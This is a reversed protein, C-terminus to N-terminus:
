PGGDADISAQAAHWAAEAAADTSDFPGDAPSVVRTRGADGTAAYIVAQPRWAGHDWGPKTDVVFDKYKFVFKRHAKSM